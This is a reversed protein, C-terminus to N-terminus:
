ARLTSPQTGARRAHRRNGSRYEQPACPFFSPKRGRGDRVLLGELGEHQYRTIWQSVYDESVSKNLGHAAVERITMGSGVKLIAATKTRMYPLRHHDRCDRLEQKQEESLVVTRRRM